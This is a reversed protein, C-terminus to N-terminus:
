ARRSVRVLRPQAERARRCPTRRGRPARRAAPPLPPQAAQHELVRARDRQAVLRHPDAAVDRAADRRAAVAVRDRARDGVGVHRRARRPCPPRPRCRRGSPRPSTAASGSYSGDPSRTRSQLKRCVPGIFTATLQSQGFGPSRSRSSSMSCRRAPTRAAANPTRVAAIRTLAGHIPKHSTTGTSAQEM